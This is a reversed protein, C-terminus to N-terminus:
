PSVGGPDHDPVRHHRHGTVHVPSPLAGGDATLEQVEIAWLGAARDHLTRRQPDIIAWWVGVGALLWSPVRCVAWLLRRPASPAAGGADVLAIGLARKGPTGRRFVLPWAIQLLVLLSAAVLARGPRDHLYDVVQDFLNWRPIAPPDPDSAVVVWTLLAWSTLPVFLDLLTALSRRGLSAARCRLPVGPDVASM